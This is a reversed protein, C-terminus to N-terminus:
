CKSDALSFAKRGQKVLPLATITSQLGEFSYTFGKPWIGFVALLAVILESIPTIWRTARINIPKNLKQPHKEFSKVCMHYAQLVLSVKYLRRLGNLSKVLTWEHRGQLPLMPTSNESMNNGPRHCLCSKRTSFCGVRFLKSKVQSQIVQLPRRPSCIMSYSSFLAKFWFDSVTLNSINDCQAEM